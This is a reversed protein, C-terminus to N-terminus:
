VMVTSTTSGAAGLIVNPNDTLGNTGLLLQMITLNVGDSTGFTGAVRDWM